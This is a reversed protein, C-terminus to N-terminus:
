MITKVIKPTFTPCSGRVPLVPTGLPSVEGFSLIIVIPVGTALCLVAELQNLTCDKVHKDHPSPTDEAEEM